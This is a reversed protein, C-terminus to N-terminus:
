ILSILLHLASGKMASLHSMSITLVKMCLLNTEFIYLLFFSLPVLFALKVVPHMPCWPCCVEFLPEIRIYSAPDQFADGCRSGTLCNTMVQKQKTGNLLNFQTILCDSVWSLLHTKQGHFLFSIKRQTGKWWHPYM